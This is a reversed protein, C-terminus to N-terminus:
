EVCSLSFSFSLCFLFSPLFSPNAQCVKWSQRAFAKEPQASYEFWSFKVKCLGAEWPFDSRLVPWSIQIQMCLSRGLALPIMLEHIHIFNLVQPSGGMPCNLISSRSSKLNMWIWASAKENTWPGASRIYTQIEIPLRWIINNGRRCEIQHEYFLTSDNM